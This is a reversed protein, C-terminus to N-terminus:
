PGGDRPSRASSKPASSGAPAEPKKPAPAAACARLIKPSLEIPDLVVAPDAERWAGCSTEALGPADLAAYAETLKQEIDAVEPRTLEGYGLMRNGRAVADVYRGSRVDAALTPLEADARRQAERGLGGGETRVLAGASAAEAKAAPTFPLGTLPV